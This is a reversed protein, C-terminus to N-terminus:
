QKEFEEIYNYGVNDLINRMTKEIRDKAYETMKMLEKDTFNIGYRSFVKNIESIRRNYDKSGILESLFEFAREQDSYVDTRSAIGFVYNGLTMTKPMTSYPQKVFMMKAQLWAQSSMAQAEQYYSSYLSYALMYADQSDSCESMVRAVKQYWEPQDDVQDLDNDARKQFINGHMLEHSITHGVEGIIRERSSMRLELDVDITIYVEGSNVRTIKGFVRDLRIPTYQITIYVCTVVKSIDSCNVTCTESFSKMADAVSEACRDSVEQQSDFQHVSENLIALAMARKGEFLPIYEM